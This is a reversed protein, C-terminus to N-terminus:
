DGGKTKLQEENIPLEKLAAYVELALRCDYATSHLLTINVELGLYEAVVGLRFLKPQDPKLNDIVFTIIDVSQWYFYERFRLDNRKVFWSGLFRVDSGSNYGAIILRENRAKPNIHKNLFPLFKQNHVSDPSELVELEPITIHENSVYSPATEEGQPPAATFTFQEILYIEDNPIIEALIGSMSWISHKKPSPGTTAIDFFLVKQSNTM